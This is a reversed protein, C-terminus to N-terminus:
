KMFVALLAMPITIVTVIIIIGLMAHENLNVGWFPLAPIPFLAIVWIAALALLRKWRRRIVQM